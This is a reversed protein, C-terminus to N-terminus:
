RSQSDNPPVRARATVIARMEDIIRQDYISKPPMADAANLEALALDYNKSRLADNARKMTAVLHSSIRPKESKEGVPVSEASLVVSGPGWALVSALTALLLLAKPHGSSV